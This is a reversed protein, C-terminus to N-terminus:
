MIAEAIKKGYELCSELAPSDPNWQVKIPESIIEFGAEALKNNIIKTGLPSWGYSGFAAAKKGTLAFGILEDLIGAVSTLIGNNVTSSGAVIAKSKFIDSIIDSKDSKSANHIKVEIKNNVTNIGKAIAEAMKRTSSYMSDYFVTVLNEVYNNAWKHYLDVIQTPNKDWMIGHAPLIYDIPLNMARLEEIKKTVKKSFPAVINAYYKVAENFLTCQDCLSNFMKDSAFHQGFADNSFLINDKELYCMMSDPWHIMSNEIFVLDRSGLSLRDGTKVVNFKWDKHYYGKISKVGNASCYIEANPIRNMLMPLAGSHDPEAHNVVIYDIKSLDIEKELENLYEEAFPYYVSDILVNKEDKILYANYSSGNNTTLEEGHFSRLEYDVKGVWYVDNKIHFAM